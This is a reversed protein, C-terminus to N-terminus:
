RRRARLVRSRADAGFTSRCSRSCRPSRTPRQEAATGRSPALAEAEARPGRRRRPGDRGRPRRRAGGRRASWRSFVVVRSCTRRTPSPSRTCRAAHLVLQCCSGPSAAASCRRASAASPPSSSSSCSFLLLDSSSTSTTASRAGARAHAAASGLSRSCSLRRIRAARCRRAPRRRRPSTTPEGARRRALDRARRHRRVAPDRPQDGLGAHARTWRRAGAHRRARAPHRQRRPRLAALAEPVRRRRRGRPVHRRAGRPARAARRPADAPAPAARRRGARARRAARGPRRAAIRAARRILTTARRAAPSPSSSGSAPRGRAPRHRPTERYDQLAEDVRDAVWLLALERLAGLNGARFYNALAADVKEPPTSTATPWAAPAAGGPDHRGARDPRRARVVADPITERQTVGTIQEVVDNLSELHQINVTSIVDIGADLLEEVDQWRKENRRAPSTPTPSSTSWRSRPSRPRPGRRRGDGRLAAGRYTSRGARSSRSTASRPPPRDAPRPDRRLRRRRRHRARRRRRGEDLMAFTKGVGPRRRPLHAAHRSGHESTSM